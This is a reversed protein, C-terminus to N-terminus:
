IWLKSPLLLAISIRAEQGSAKAGLLGTTTEEKCHKPTQMCLEPTIQCVTIKEGEDVPEEGYMQEM